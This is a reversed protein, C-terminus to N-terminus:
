SSHTHPTMAAIAQTHWPPRSSVLPSPLFYASRMKFTAEKNGGFSRGGSPEAAMGKMRQELTMARAAELSDGKRFAAAHDVGKAAYMRPERKGDKGEKSEKRGKVEV